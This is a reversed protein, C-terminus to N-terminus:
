QILITQFRKAVFTLLVKTFNCIDTELTYIGFILFYKIKNQKTDTELYFTNVKM